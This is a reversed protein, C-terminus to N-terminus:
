SRVSGKDTIFGSYSHEQGPWRWMMSIGAAKISLCLWERSLSYHDHRNTLHERRSLMNPVFSAAKNLRIKITQMPLIQRLGVASCRKRTARAGESM